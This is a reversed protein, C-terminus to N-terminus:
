VGPVTKEDVQQRVWWVFGNASGQGVVFEVNLFAGVFIQDFRLRFIRLVFERDAGIWFKAALPRADFRGEIDLGVAVMLAHDAPCHAGFAVQAWRKRYVEAAPFINKAGSEIREAQAPVEIAHLVVVREQQFESYVNGRIPRHNVDGGVPGKVGLSVDAPVGDGAEVARADRATLAGGQGFVKGVPHFGGLFKGM